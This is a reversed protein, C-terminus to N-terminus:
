FIKVPGVTKSTCVRVQQVIPKVTFREFEGKIGERM